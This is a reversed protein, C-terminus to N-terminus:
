PRVEIAKGKEEDDQHHAEKNRRPIIGVVARVLPSFVRVINYWHKRVFEDPVCRIIIASPLAFAAVIVCIAWQVGDIHVVSFARGGVFIILVQGGIM